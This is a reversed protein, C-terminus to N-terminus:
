EPTNLPKGTFRYTLLNCSSNLLIEGTEEKPSGMKINNVTVLREMNSVEGLFSGINHYPGIISISIPFEAYFDKQTEGGPQFSEFDLGARKGLDSITDLLDPIEKDDPLIDSIKKFKEKAAALEEEKQTINKKAEKAKDVDAKLEKQQTKLKTIDEQKPAFFLVYFLAVPVILIVAALAIKIKKDLPIYKENLFSDFKAASNDSAM